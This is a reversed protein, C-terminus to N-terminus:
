KNIRRKTVVAATVATMAIAVTIMSVTMDATEPSGPNSPEEDAPPNDAPPNDVPPQVEGYTVSVNEVTGTAKYGFVGLYGGKFNNMTTEYYLTDDIFAKLAGDAEIELRLTYTNGYIAGCDFDLTALGCDSFPAYVTSMGTSPNVTFCILGGFIANAPDNVLCLGLRDSGDQVTFDGSYVIKKGAAVYYDSLAVLDSGAINEAKSVIKGDAFDWAGITAQTIHPVMNTIGEPCNAASVVFGSCLSSFLVVSLLVVLFRKM